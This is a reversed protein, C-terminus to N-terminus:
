RQSAVAALLLGGTLAIHELAIQFDVTRRPEAYLWFPHGLPICLLTFGGLIGAGLWALGAFNTILLASGLLQTAITAVAFAQPAPLKATQMEAVIVDFNFVGFIGAIVFFSSLVIRGVVLTTPQALLAHIWESM